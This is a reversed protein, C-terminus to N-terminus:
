DRPPWRRPRLLRLRGLWRRRGTLDYGQNEAQMHASVMNIVNGLVTKSVGESAIAKILDLSGRWVVVSVQTSRVSALWLSTTLSLRVQALEAEDSAALGDSALKHLSVLVEDLRERRVAAADARSTALLTAWSAAATFGGGILAGILAASTETEM